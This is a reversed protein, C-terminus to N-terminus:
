DALWNAGPWVMGQGSILQENSCVRECVAGQVGDLTRPMPKWQSTSANALYTNYMLM